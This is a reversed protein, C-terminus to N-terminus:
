FHHVMCSMEKTERHDNIVSSSLNFLDNAGRQTCMKLSPPLSLSTPLSYHKTTGLFALLPLTSSSFILKENHIHLPRLYRSGGQRYYGHFGSFFPSLYSDSVHTRFVRGISLLFFFCFNRKLWVNGLNIPFIAESAVKSGQFTTKEHPFSLLLAKDWFAM